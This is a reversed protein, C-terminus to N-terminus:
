QRRHFLSTLWKLKEKLNHWIIPWLPIDLVTEDASHTDLDGCFKQIHEWPDELFQEFTILDSNDAVVEDFLYRYLETETAFAFSQTGNRDDIALTQVTIKM